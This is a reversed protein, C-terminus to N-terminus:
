QKKLFFRIVGFGLKPMVKYGKPLTTNKSMLAPIIRNICMYWPLGFSQSENSVGVPFVVM